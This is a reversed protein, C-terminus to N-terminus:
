GLDYCVVNSEEEVKATMTTSDLIRITVFVITIVFRNIRDIMVSILTFRPLNDIIYTSVYIRLTLRITRPLFHM